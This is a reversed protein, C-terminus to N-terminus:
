KTSGNRVAPHHKRSVASRGGGKQQEVWALVDAHDFRVYRGLRVHPLRGDRSAQRVWREPVSLMAAVEAADLLRDETRARPSGSSELGSSSSPPSPTM